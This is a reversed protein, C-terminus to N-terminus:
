KKGVQKASIATIKRHPFLTVCEALKFHSCQTTTDPIYLVILSLIPLHQLKGKLHGVQPRHFSSYKAIHDSAYDSKETM